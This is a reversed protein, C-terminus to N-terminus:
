SVVVAAVSAGAIVVRQYEVPFDQLKSGPVKNRSKLHPQSLVIERDDVEIDPTFGRIRGAYVTGDELRVRAYAYHGKPCDHRFVQTWISRQRISSGPISFSLVAHWLLALGVSLIIGCFLTAAVRQYDAVAYKSGERLLAGPDVLWDPNRWVRLAGLM